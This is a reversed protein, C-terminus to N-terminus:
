HLRSRKHAEQSSSGVLHGATFRGINAMYAEQESFPPDSVSGICIGILNLILTQFFKARPMIPMGLVSIIPILYGLTTYTAAVSDAQYFAIAKFANSLKDV